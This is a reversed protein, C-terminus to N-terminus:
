VETSEVINPVMKNKAYPHPVPYEGNVIAPVPEAGSHIYPALEGSRVIIPVVNEAYIIDPGPSSIGFSERIVAIRLQGNVIATNLIWVAGTTYTFGYSQANALMTQALWLNGIAVTVVKLDASVQMRQALFLGTAGMSLPLIQFTASMPQAIIRVGGLVNSSFSSANSIAIQALIGTSIRMAASL